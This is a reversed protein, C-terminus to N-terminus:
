DALLSSAAALADAVSGRVGWNARWLTTALSALPRPDRAARLRVEEVEVVAVREFAVRKSGIRKGFWGATFMRLATQPLKNEVQM